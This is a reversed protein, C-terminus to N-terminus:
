IPIVINKIFDKIQSIRNIVTGTYVYLNFFVLKGDDFISLGFKETAQDFAIVRYGTKQPVSTPNEFTIAQDCIPCRFSATRFNSFPVEVIHGESCRITIFSNMNKYNDASVLEFGKEEVEARIQEVSLKAM